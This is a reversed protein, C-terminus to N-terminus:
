FDITRRYDEVEDVTPWGLAPALDAGRKNMAVRQAYRVRMLALRYLRVLRDALIDATWSANVEPEIQIRLVDGSGDLEIVLVGDVSSAVFTTRPAVGVMVM